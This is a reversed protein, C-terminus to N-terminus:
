DSCGWLGAYPGLQAIAKHLLNHSLAAALATYPQISSVGLGRAFATDIEICSRADERRGDVVLWRAVDLGALAASARGWEWREPRRKLSMIWSVMLATHTISYECNDLNRSPAVPEQALGTSEEQWTEAWQM